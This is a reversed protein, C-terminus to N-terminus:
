DDRLGRNESRVKILLQGLVNQGDNQCRDCSCSGWYNDHWTNGEVLIASGTQDLKVALPTGPAFKQRLIDLMVKDKILEWDQRMNCRRGLRKAKGPTEANVILSKTYSDAAKAAQFAHEASPVTYGDYTIICPYFNSLFDYKGSFSTVINPM